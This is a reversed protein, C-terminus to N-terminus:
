VYMAQGTRLELHEHRHLNSHEPIHCRTTQYLHASTVTSGRGGNVTYISPPYVGYWIVADDWFAAINITSVFGLFEVIKKELKCLSPFAIFFVRYV